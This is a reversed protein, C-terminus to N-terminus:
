GRATARLAAPELPPFRGPDFPALDVTRAAGELILEALAEGTAPANLIGWVSHGTAVYAGAVDAVRGILPLGDKAIPRYCAQRAVIKAAALVPSLDRCIAELREVAGPDPAVEDPDLPLPSDSSIACVYTTGDDRPFVEPTQEVGNAERYECFLAEAPIRAGTEFVLSHGKLGFVPPLPLWAGALISWPGMAIVIADGEVVAGDVVVGAVGGDDHRVVGDVRGRRLGAGSAQAARMMAVSFRAPHVQATTEPTGLRATVAAGSGLWPLDHAGGRRRARAHQTAFAGYTTLRRYGWDGDIERALQAHLAFSRRALAALPTGDCWDLALFGGAKGSAACALGGQEIVTTRVGRRSLFYAVSAGVVGGGCILVHM